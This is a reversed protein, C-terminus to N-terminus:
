RWIWMAALGAAIVGLPMSVGPDSGRFMLRPAVIWVVGVFVVWGVWMGKWAVIMVGLAGIIAGSFFLLAEENAVTSRIM